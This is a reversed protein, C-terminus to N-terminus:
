EKVTVVVKPVTMMWSLETQMTQDPVAVSLEVEYTGPTLGTLDAYIAVDKRELRRMHSIKGTIAIDSETESLEATLGDELGRIDIKVGQLEVTEQIERIDVYVTAEPPDLLM